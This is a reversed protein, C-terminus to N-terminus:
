RLEKKALKVHKCTDNYKFGPCSCVIAHRSRGKKVDFILHTEGLTMESPVQYVKATGWFHLLSTAKSREEVVSKGKKPEGKKVTRRKKTANSKGTAM